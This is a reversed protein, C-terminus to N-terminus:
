RLFGYGIWYTARVAGGSHRGAPVAPYLRAYEEEMAQFLAKVAAPKAQGQLANGAGVRKVSYMFDRVSPYQCTHRQLRWDFTREPVNEGTKLALAERWQEGGRFTQGHAIHPLGLRREAAAFAEHLEAFTGPAFTAFALIGKLNLMSRLAACTAAPANFWQFVANSIILDFPQGAYAAAWEEADAVILETHRGIGAADLKWRTREAMEECLDIAVLRADPYQRVIRETLLGTGCGIELIRRTTTGSALKATDALLREAMIRQVLAYRDYEHAHRNFHKRVLRKDIINM